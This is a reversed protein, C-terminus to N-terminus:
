RAKTALISILWRYVCVSHLRKHNQSLQYMCKRNLYNKFKLM